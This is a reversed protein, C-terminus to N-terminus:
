PAAQAPKSAAAANPDFLDDALGTNIKVAKITVTGTPKDNMTIDCKFGMEYDGQVKRFDSFLAVVTDAGHKSESKVATPSKRDAWLRTTAGGKPDKFEIVYCDRGSVTETGTLRADEPWARRPGVDPMQQKVQPMKQAGMPTIMWADTGDFITIMTMGQVNMETRTKEGKRMVTMQM